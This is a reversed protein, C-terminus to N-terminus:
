SPGKDAAFVSHRLLMQRFMQRARALRSRVATVTSHQQSAIREVSEGDLYKATLVAEYEQPMETLTARVLTALEAAALVEPPAVSQGQLCRFAEGNSAM